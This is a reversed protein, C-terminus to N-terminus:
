YKQFSMDFTEAEIDATSSRSSSIMQDVQIYVRM